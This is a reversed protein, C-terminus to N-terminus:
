QKVKTLEWLDTNQKFHNTQCVLDYRFIDQKFLNNTLFVTNSYGVPMVKIFMYVHSNFKICSCIFVTDGSPIRNKRFCLTSFLERQSFFCHRKNVMFVGTHSIEKVRTLYKMSFISLAM